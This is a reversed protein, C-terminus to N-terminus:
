HYYKAGRINPHRIVTSKESSSPLPKLDLSTKLIAQVSKYSVGGIALARKCAAELREDGYTKGLSM